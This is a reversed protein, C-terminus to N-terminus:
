IISTAYPFLFSKEIHIIKYYIPATGPHLPGGAQRRGGQLAAAAGRRDRARQRLRQRLRYIQCGVLM